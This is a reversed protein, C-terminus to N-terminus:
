EVDDAPTPCQAPNWKTWEGLQMWHTAQIPQFNTFTESKIALAEQKASIKEREVQTAQGNECSLPRFICSRNCFLYSGHPFASAALCLM